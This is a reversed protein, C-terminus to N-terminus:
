RQSKYLSAVISLFKSCTLMVNLYNAGSKAPTPATTNAAAAAAAAATNQAATEKIFEQSGIDRGTKPERSMSRQLSAVVDREQLVALRTESSARRLPSVVIPESTGPPPYEQQYRSSAYSTYTGSRQRRVGSM